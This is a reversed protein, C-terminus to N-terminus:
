KKKLTPFISKLILFSVDVGKGEVLPKENIIYVPKTNIELIKYHKTSTISPSILDIGGFTLGICQVAKVCIKKMDSSIRDTYDIARGGNGSMVDNRLAVSENKQLVSKLTLDNRSLTQKVIDDIKIKFGHIRNKNQQDILQKITSFGDGTVTAPLRKVCSIVKDGLVLVRYEEGCAMEEVILSDRKLFNLSNKLKKVLAIAKRLDNQTRINWTVGKGLSGDIPKVILPYSLSNKEIQRLAQTTTKATIGRPVSINNEHLITKTAEKCATFKGLQAMLPLYYNNAYVTKNKYKFRVLNKQDSYMHVDVGLEIARKVFSRFGAHKINNLSDKKAPM